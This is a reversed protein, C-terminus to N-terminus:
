WTTCKESSPLYWHTCTWCTWYWLESVFIFQFTIIIRLRKLSFRALQWRLQRRPHFKELIGILEFFNPYIFSILSLVVTIENQRWWTSDAEPATSREVVLVVLYASCCLLLLVLFNAAIRRLIIDRSLSYFLIREAIYFWGFNCTYIIM